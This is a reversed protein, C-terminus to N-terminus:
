TAFGCNWFYWNPPNQYGVIEQRIARFNFTEGCRIWPVDEWQLQQLARILPQQKDPNPEALMQSVLHDKKDSTWWGPWTGDLYVQLIPHVFTSHGTVFVEYQEPKSRTSVLTAWDMVQLDINVGVKALQDKFSLGMNYMYAYEKTALWRVPQGKYGAEQLLKKAKEPNYEYVEKGM